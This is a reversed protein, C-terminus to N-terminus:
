RPANLQTFEAKPPQGADRTQDTLQPDYTYVFYSVANATWSVAERPTSAVEYPYKFYNLIHNQWRQSGPRYRPCYPKMVVVKAHRKLCQGLMTFIKDELDVSFVYNNCFVVDADRLKIAHEHAIEDEPLKTADGNILSIEGIGSWGRERAFDLLTRKFSLAIDHLATRIEIGMSRCGTMAALQMVVTGIGSGIDIVTHDQTIGLHRILQNCFIPHAEGYVEESRPRYSRFTRVDDPTISLERLSDYVIRWERATPRTRPAVGPAVSRNGEITLADSDDLGSLGHGDESICVIGYQLLARLFVMVAEWELPAFEDLAPALPIVLSNSQTANVRDVGPRSAQLEILKKAEAIKAPSLQRTACWQRVMAMTVRSVVAMERHLYAFLRLEAVTVYPMGTLADGLAHLEGDIADLPAADDDIDTLILADLGAVGQIAQVLGHTSVRARLRQSPPVADPHARADVQQWAFRAATESHQLVMDFDDVATELDSLRAQLASNLAAQSEAYARWEAASAYASPPEAPMAARAATLAVRCESRGLLRHPTVKRLMDQLVQFDEPRVPGDVIPKLRRTNRLHEFTVVAPLPVDDDATSAPAAAAAAAVPAAAAATSAFYHANDLKLTLPAACYAILDGGVNACLKDFMQLRKSQPGFSYHVSARLNTFMFRFQDANSIVRGRIMAGILLLDVALLFPSVSTFRAVGFGNNTGNTAAATTTVTSTSATAASTSFAATARNRIAYEEADPHMAFYAADPMRILLQYTRALLQYFTPDVDVVAIHPVGWQFRKIYAPAVTALRRHLLKVDDSEFDRGNEFATVLTALNCGVVHNALAHASDFEPAGCWCHLPPPLGDNWESTFEDDAVLLLAARSPTVSPELRVMSTTNTNTNNDDGEIDVMTDLDDESDINSIISQGNM